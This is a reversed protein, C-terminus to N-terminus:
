IIRDASQITEMSQYKKLLKMKVSKLGHKYPFLDWKCINKPDNPWQKLFFELSIKKRTEKGEKTLVVREFQETGIEVLSVLSENKDMFLHKSTQRLYKIADEKKQEITKM